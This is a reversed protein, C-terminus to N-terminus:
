AMETPENVTIIEDNAPPNIQLDLLPVIDQRQIETPAPESFFDDIYNNLITKHTSVAKPRQKEKKKKNVSNNTSPKFTPAKTNFTNRIFPTNTFSAIDQDSSVTVELEPLKPFYYKSAPRNSAKEDHASYPTTKKHKAVKPKLTAKLKPASFLM